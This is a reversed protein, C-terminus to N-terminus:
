LQGTLDVEKEWYYKTNYHSINYGLTQLRWQIIWEYVDPFKRIRHLNAPVVLLSHEDENATM